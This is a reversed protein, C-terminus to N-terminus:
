FSGSVMMGNSNGLILPTVQIGNKAYVAVKTHTVAGAILMALGGAQVLGDFALAINALGAGSGNGTYSMQIWPGVVPILLPWSYSYDLSSAYYSSSNYNTTAILSSALVSTLWGAGLVVAGAVILGTRPRNVYKVTGQPATGYGPQQPYYPQPQYPQGPYPQPQYPQGPYPQAQYPQQPYPQQPQAETGAPPTPAPYPQQASPPYNPPAQQDPAQQAWAPSAFGVCLGALTL